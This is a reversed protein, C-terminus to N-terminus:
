LKIVIKGLYSGNDMFAFAQPAQELPFMRDIVPRIKHESMFRNMAEFDARTRRGLPPSPM